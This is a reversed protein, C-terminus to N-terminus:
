TNAVGNIVLLNFRTIGDNIAGATPNCVKIDAQERTDEYEIGYTLFSSTTNFNPTLLLHDRTANIGTVARYVCSHAAVSGIDASFNRIAGDAQSIDRDTLAGNAVDIGFVQGDAIESAAVAGTAIESSKVSNAALDPSYLGGFPLTDDRVDTTYVENDVIDGTRITNAAYASTGGLAVFLALWAVVNQRIHGFLRHLM